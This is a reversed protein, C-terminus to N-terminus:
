HLLRLDVPLLPLQVVQLGVLLEDQIGRIYVPGTLATMNTSGMSLEDMSAKGILCANEQKLFNCLM